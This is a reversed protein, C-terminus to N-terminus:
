AVEFTVLRKEAVGLLPKKKHLGEGEFLKLSSPV